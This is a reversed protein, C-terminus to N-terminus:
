LKLGAQIYIVAMAKFDDGYSNYHKRRAM